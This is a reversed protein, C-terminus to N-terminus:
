ESCHSEYLLFVLFVRFVSFTQDTGVKNNWDELFKSNLECGLEKWMEVVKNYRNLITDLPLASEESYNKELLGIHKDVLRENFQIEHAAVDKGIIDEAKIGEHKLAQNVDRARLLMKDVNDIIELYEDRFEQLEQSEISVSVQEAFFKEIWDKMKALIERIKDIFTKRQEETM